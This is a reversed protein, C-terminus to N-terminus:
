KLERAIRRKSWGKGKLDRILEQVSVKLYNAM